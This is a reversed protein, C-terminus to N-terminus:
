EYVPPTCRPVLAEMVYTCVGVNIYISLSTPSVCGQDLLFRRVLLSWWGSM